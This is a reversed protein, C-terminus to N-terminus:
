YILSKWKYCSKLISFRLFFFQQICRELIFMSWSMTYGKRHQLQNFFFLYTVQNQLSKKKRIMYAQIESLIFLFVIKYLISIYEICCKVYKLVNQGREIISSVFFSVYGSKKDNSIFLIFLFVINYWSLYIICFKAYDVVNNCQQIWYLFYRLFYFICM